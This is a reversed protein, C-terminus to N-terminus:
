ITLQEFTKNNEEIENEIMINQHKERNIEDIIVATITLSFIVDDELTFLIASPSPVVPISVARADILVM